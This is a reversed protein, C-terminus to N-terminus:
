PSCPTCEWQRTLGGWEVGCGVMGSQDTCFKRIGDARARQPRLDIAYRGPRACDVFIGILYGDEKIYNGAIHRWNADSIPPGLYNKKLSQGECFRAAGNQEIETKEAAAKLASFRSAALSENHAVRLAILEPRLALAAPGYAVCAVFALWVARRRTSALPALARGILGTILCVVAVALAAAVVAFIVYSQAIGDELPWVMFEALTGALTSVAAILLFRFWRGESLMTALGAALGVVGLPVWGSLDLSPELISPLWSVASVAAVLFGLVVDRNM